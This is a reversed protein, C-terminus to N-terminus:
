PVVLKVKLATLVREIPIAYAGSFNVAVLLAVAQGSSPNILLAGSDGMLGLRKGNESQLWLLGDFLIEGLGEYELRCCQNLTKIVGRGHPTSRGSFEVVMNEKPPLPEHSRLKVPAIFKASVDKRDLIRAVACDVYNVHTPTLPVFDSLEVLEAIPRGGPDDVPGPQYILTKPELVNSPVLM